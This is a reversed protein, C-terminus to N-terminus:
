YKNYAKVVARLYSKAFGKTAAGYRQYKHNEIQDDMIRKLCEKLNIINEAQAILFADKFNSTFHMEEILRQSEKARNDINVLAFDYQEPTLNKCMTDNVFRQIRGGIEGILQKLEADDVIHIFDNTIEGIQKIINEKNKDDKVSELVEFIASHEHQNEEKWKNIDSRQWYQQLSLVGGVLLVTAAVIDGINWSNGKIPINASEKLQAETADRYNLETPYDPTIGKILFYVSGVSLIVIIAIVFINRGMMM